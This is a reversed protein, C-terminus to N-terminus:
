FILKDYYTLDVQMEDQILDIFLSFFLLHYGDIISDLKSRPMAIEVPESWDSQLGNEDKARVRIQYEGQEEWSHDMTCTEGSNFPGIWISQTSDGWEFLYYLDDGDLDETVANYSYKTNIKGASPGSPPEPKMPPQSAGSIRLSPDGFLHNQLVTLMDVENMEDDTYRDIADGILHGLFLCSQMYRNSIELCLREIGKQIIATGPYGLDTDSGGIFAIAGGKPNRVFSWAFCDDYSDYECHYCADSIIIPLRDQNTLSDIDELTYSGQPIWQNSNHPHTAWMNHLGHGNFFVFGAGENIADNINSASRLLGNSAWIRRPIFGELIEIVHQQVYEGEDINEEDGPLSDGGICVINTFWQQSWAENTEYDIIKQIIVELEENDNCPLRGVYVDPSFDIRDFNGDWDYEAFVGNGNSDWSSFSGNADYIDAYYFDSPFMWQTPTPYGFDDSYYINTYRAPVHQISGILLVFDVSQEEISVKIFNKIKEMEDVGPYERYIEETTQVFTQIGRVNKHNVLAQVTDVFYGDTIIVMDGSTEGGHDYVRTEEGPLTAISLPTLLLFCIIMCRKKM